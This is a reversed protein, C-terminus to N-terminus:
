LSSLTAQTPGPSVVPTKPAIPEPPTMRARGDVWGITRRAQEGDPGEVLVSTGAEKTFRQTTQRGQVSTTRTIVTTGDPKEYLRRSVAEDFILAEAIPDMHAVVCFDTGDAMEVTTEARLRPRRQPPEYNGVARNVAEEINALFRGVTAQAGGIANEHVAVDQRVELRLFSAGTPQALQLYGGDQPGAGDLRYLFSPAPHSRGRSIQKASRDQPTYGAAHAADVMAQHAAEVDDTRIKAQASLEAAM